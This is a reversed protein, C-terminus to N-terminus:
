LPWGTGVREIPADVNPETEGVVWARIAGGRRKARELADVVRADGGAIVGVADGVRPPEPSAGDDPSPYRALWEWLAWMSGSEEYTSPETGPAWLVARGGNRLCEWVESAALRAVQDAAERTPPAPDCFIGLSQIGPPEYERVILEGHRATSRWDIRRLPDGPRYERAGFLETGSGARSAAASLELERVRTRSGLSTFRPLVLAIERAETKKGRHRFLGLLDGTELVWGSTIVPGRRAPGVVKQEVWGQKPIRGAAAALEVGAISGTMKAPGRTGSSSALELDLTISDGEFATGPPRANLLAEPLDEMPSGPASTQDRVSIESRVGRNWLHYVYAAVILAAVWYALLYLWAVESTGAYYFVVVAVVLAGYFRATPV